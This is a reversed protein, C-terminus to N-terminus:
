SQPSVTIKIWTRVRYIGTYWWASRGQVGEHGIKFMMPEKERERERCVCMYYM